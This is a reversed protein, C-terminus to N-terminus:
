LWKCPAPRSSAPSSRSRSIAEAATAAALLFHVSLRIGLAYFSDVDNVARMERRRGNQKKKAKAEKGMPRSMSRTLNFIASLRSRNEIIRQLQKPQPVGRSCNEGFYRPPPAARFPRQRPSVGNLGPIGDLVIASGRRSRHQRCCRQRNPFTM